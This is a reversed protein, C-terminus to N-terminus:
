CPASGREGPMVPLHAWLREEGGGGGAFGWRHRLKGVHGLPLHQETGM